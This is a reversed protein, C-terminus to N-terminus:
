WPERERGTQSSPVDYESSKPKGGEVKQSKEEEAIIPASSVSMDVVQLALGLLAGPLLDDVLADRGLCGLLAVHGGDLLGLCCVAVVGVLHGLGDARLHCGRGGDWRDRAPM